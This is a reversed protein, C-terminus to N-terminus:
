TAASWGTSARCFEESLETRHHRLGKPIPVSGSSAAMWAAIRSGTRTPQALPLSRNCRGGAEPSARGCNVSTRRGSRLMRPSDGREALNLLLLIDALLQQAEVDLASWGMSLPIWLPPKRASPPGPKPQGAGVRSVVDSEDM